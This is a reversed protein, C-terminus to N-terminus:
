SLIFLQTIFQSLNKRLYKYARGMHAEVTKISLGLIEAIEHYKLRDLRNMIFVNRCKEPLNSIATEIAEGLEKNLYDAEPSRPTDRVIRLYQRGQEQVKNHKLFNLANNRAIKYLLSKINLSPDMQERISWIKLFSDQTINEADDEDRVMSWVFKVLPNYYKEFFVKMASREGRQIREALFSDSDNRSM